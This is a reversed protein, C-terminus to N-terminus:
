FEVPLLKNKTLEVPPTKAEEVKCAVPAASNYEVRFTPPWVERVVADEV